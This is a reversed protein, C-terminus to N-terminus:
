YTDMGGGWAKWLDMWEETNKGVPENMWGFVLFWGMLVQWTGLKSSGSCSSYPQFFLILIMLSWAGLTPLWFLHGPDWPYELFPSINAEAWHRMNTKRFIRVWPRPEILRRLERFRPHGWRGHDQYLVPPFFFLFGLILWASEAQSTVVPELFSYVDLAPM